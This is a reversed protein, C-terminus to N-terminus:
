VSMMIRVTEVDPQQGQELADLLEDALNSKNRLAKLLLADPNQTGACFDIPASIISELWVHRM